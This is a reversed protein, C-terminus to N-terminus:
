DIYRKLYTELDKCGIKTLNYVRRKTYNNHIHFDSITSGVSTGDSIQAQNCINDDWMFFCSKMAWKEKMLVSDNLSNPLEAGFHPAKNGGLAWCTSLIKAATHTQTKDEAPLWM